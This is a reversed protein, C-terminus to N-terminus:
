LTSAAQMHVEFNPPAEASIGLTVSSVSSEIVYINYNANIANSPTASITPVRKHPGDLSVTAYSYGQTFTVTKTEFIIGPPFQRSMREGM